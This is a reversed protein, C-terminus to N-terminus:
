CHREIHVLAGVCAANQQIQVEVCDSLSWQHRERMGTRASPTQRGDMECTAEQVRM